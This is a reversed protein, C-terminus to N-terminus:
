QRGIALEGILEGLLSQIFLEYLGKRFCHLCLGRSDIKCKAGYDLVNGFDHDIISEFALYATVLQILVEVLFLELLEPLSDVVFVGIGHM